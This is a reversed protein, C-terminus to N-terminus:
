PVYGKISLSPPTQLVQECRPRRVLMVKPTGACRGLGPLRPVGAVNGVVVCFFVAVGELQCRLGCAGLEIAGGDQAAVELGLPPDERGGLRQTPIIGRVLEADRVGDIVPKLFKEVPM